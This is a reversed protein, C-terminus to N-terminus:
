QSPQTLMSPFFISYVDQPLAVDLQRSVRTRHCALELQRLWPHRGAEEFTPPFIEARDSNLYYSYLVKVYWTCHSLIPVTINM